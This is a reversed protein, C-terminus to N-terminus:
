LKSLQENLSALKHNWFVELSRRIHEELGEPIDCTDVDSLLNQVRKSKLLAMDHQLNRIKLAIENGTRLEDLTM